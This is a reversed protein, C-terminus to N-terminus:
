SYSCTIAVRLTTMVKAWGKLAPIANAMFTRTANRRVSLYQCEITEVRRNAEEVADGAKFPRALNMVVSHTSFKGIVRMVWGKNSM